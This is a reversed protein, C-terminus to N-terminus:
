PTSHLQSWSYPDQQWQALLQATEETLLGHTQAVELLATLNTLSYCPIGLQAFREQAEPFGYSFIALVAEVRGDAALLAEVATLSSGGTSILDEVLVVRQGAELRGEIQRGQGHTKAQSRVYVLPLDLRDALWAAHPIGATATGAIVEPELRHQHLLQLFGEVISRRVHPYSILLRNDCYIPAKLGSAWTFPRDPAFSVAGITLLAAAVQRALVDEPTMGILPPKRGLEM